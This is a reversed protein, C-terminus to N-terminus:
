LQDIGIFVTAPIQPGATEYHALCPRGTSVVQVYRQADVEVSVVRHSRLSAIVVALGPGFGQCPVHFDGSFLLVKTIPVNMHILLQLLGCLVTGSNKHAAM